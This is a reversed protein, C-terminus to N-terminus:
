FQLFSHNLPPIIYLPQYSWDSDTIKYLYNELTDLEIKPLNVREKNNLHSFYRVVKILNFRNFSIMTYNIEDNPNKVSFSIKKDAEDQFHYIPTGVIRGKKLLSGLEHNNSFNPIILSVTRFGRDKIEGRVINTVKFFDIFSTYRLFINEAPTVLDVSQQLPKGHIDCPFFQKTFEQRFLLAEEEGIFGLFVIPKLYPLPYSEILRCLLGGMSNESHLVVKKIDDLYSLWPLKSKYWFPRISIVRKKALKMVDTWSRLDYIPPNSSLVTAYLTNFSQKQKQSLQTGFPLIHDTLYFIQDQLDTLTLISLGKLDQAILQHKRYISLENVKNNSCIRKIHYSSWNIKIKKELIPLNSNLM